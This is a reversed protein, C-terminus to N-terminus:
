TEPVPTLLSGESRAGSQCMALYRDRVRRTVPGPSGGGVPLDDIQVIPQVEALTGCSFAEDCVYLESRPIEREAVDLEPFEAGVLDLVNKRTISELIGAYIPPTILTNDRVIFLTAGTLEAVTDRDNLLIAEQFGREHAEILPLRFASYSAGAKVLPSMALEPSRRWSSVLCRIGSSLTDPVPSPFCVIYSGLVVEDPRHAYRGEEVYITPRLYLPEEEAGISRVLAFIGEEIAQRSWSDPLRLMRASRELRDLHARLSVVYYREDARSWYARLGDFVSTGRIALESWVHVTAQEWPVVEGNFWLVSPKPLDKGPM